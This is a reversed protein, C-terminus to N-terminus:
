VPGFGKEKNIEIPRIIIQLDRTKRLVRRQSRSVSFGSLRIRLPIVRRIENRYFGLNYRFFQTGFHRWGNALLFDLQHPLIELASFEENIFSFEDLILFDNELM